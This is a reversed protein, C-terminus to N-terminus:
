PESELDDFGATSGAPMPTCSITSSNDHSEKRGTHEPGVMGGGLPSSPDASNGGGVGANGSSSSAGGAGGGMTQYQTLGHHCDNATWRREPDTKLAGALFYNLQTHSFQDEAFKHRAESLVKSKEHELALAYEEYEDYEAYNKVFTRRRGDLFMELISLGFMYIDLKSDFECRVKATLDMFNPPNELLQKIVEPPYYADNGSITFKTSTEFTSHQTFTNNGGMFETDTQRDNDIDSNSIQRDIVNSASSSSTQQHHIPTHHHATTSSSSAASTGSAQQQLIGNGFPTQATIPTTNTSSKPSPNTSSPRSSNNDNSTSQKSTAAGHDARSSGHHLLPPGNSVVVGPPTMAVSPPTVMPPTPPQFVASSSSVSNGIPDLQSASTAIMPINSPRPHHPQVVHHQHSSGSQKNRSGRHDGQNHAGTNLLPHALPQILSDLDAEGAVPGGASLLPLADRPAAAQQTPTSTPSGRMPPPAVVPPGSAASVASTGSLSKPAPPPPPDILGPIITSTSTAAISTTTTNKMDGGASVFEFQLSSSSTNVGPTTTTTTRPTRPPPPPPVVSNQGSGPPPPPGAIGSSTTGGSSTGSAGTPTPTNSLIGGAASPNRPTSAAAANTNSNPTPTAAASSSVAPTRNSNRQQSGTTTGGLVKGTSSTIGPPTTSNKNKSSSRTTVKTSANRSQQGSSANKTKTPEVAFRFLGLDALVADQIKGGRDVKVFINDPRVDRHIIKTNHLYRLGQSVSIACNKLERCMEGAFKFGKENTEPHIGNSVNYHWKRLCGGPHLETIMHIRETTQVTRNPGGALNPEEITDFCYDLLKLIKQRDLEQINMKQNQNGKNASSTSGSTTNQPMGPQTAAILLQLENKTQELQTSVSLARSRRRQEEQVGIQSWAVRKGTEVNEALYVVKCSGHGLITDSVRRYRGFRMTREIINTGRMDQAHLDHDFGPLGASKLPLQFKTNSSNAGRGGVASSTSGSRNRESAARDGTHQFHTAARPNQLNKQLMEEGDLAISIKGFDPDFWSRMWRPWPCRKNTKNAYWVALALICVIGVVTYVVKVSDVKVPHANLEEDESVEASVVQEAGEDQMNNIDRAANHEGAEGTAEESNNSTPAGAKTNRDDEDKNSAAVKPASATSSTGSGGGPRTIGSARRRGGHHATEEEDLVDAHESQPSDQHPVESSEVGDDPQEKNRHIRSARSLLQHDGSSHQQHDKNNNGISNIIDQAGGTAGAMGPSPPVTSSVLTNDDEASAVVPLPKDPDDALPDTLPDPITADSDETPPTTTGAASRLNNSNAANAANNGSSSSSDRGLLRSSGISMASGGEMNVATDGAVPATSTRLGGSNTTESTSGEREAELPLENSSASSLAGGAAGGSDEEPLKNRPVHREAEGAVKNELAAPAGTNTTEFFPHPKKAHPEGAASPPTDELEVLVEIEPIEALKKEHKADSSTSGEDDPTTQKNFLSFTPMSLFSGAAGSSFNPLFDAGFVSSLLSKLDESSYVLIYLLASLAIGIGMLAFWTRLKMKQPSTVSSNGFLLGNPPGGGTPSPNSTAVSWKGNSRFMGNPGISSKGKRPKGCLLLGLYGCSLDNVFRGCKRTSLAFQLLFIRLCTTKNKPVTGYKSCYDVDNNASAAAGGPLLSSQKLKSKKSKENKRSSISRDDNRSRSNINTTGRPSFGKEEDLHGAGRSSRGRAASNSRSGASSLLGARTRTPSHSDSRERAISVSTSTATSETDSDSSDHTGGASFGGGLRGGGGHHKKDFFLKNQDVMDEMRSSSSEDLQDRDSSSSASSQENHVDPLRGPPILSGSRSLGGEVGSNDTSTSLSSGKTDIRDLDERFDLMADSFKRRLERVKFSFQNFGPFVAQHQAATSSGGYQHQGSGPIISGTTTSRSAFAAATGDHDRGKSSSPTPMPSISYSRSLSSRSRKTTAGKIWDYPSVSSVASTATVRVAGLAARRKPAPVESPCTRKFAGGCAIRSAIVQQLPTRHLLKTTRPPFPRHRTKSRTIPVEVVTPTITVAEWGPHSRGAAM